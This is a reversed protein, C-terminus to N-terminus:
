QMANTTAQYTIVLKRYGNLRRRLARATAIMVLFSFGFSCVCSLYGRVGFRAYEICLSGPSRTITARGVWDVAMKM